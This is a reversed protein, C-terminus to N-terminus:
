DLLGEKDTDEKPPYTAALDAKYEDPLETNVPVPEEGAEIAAQKAEAAKVAHATEYAKQAAAQDKSNLRPM